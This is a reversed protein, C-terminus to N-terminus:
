SCVEDSQEAGFPGSWMVSVRGRDIEYILRRGNDGPQRVVVRHVEVDPNIVEADPHVDLVAQESDGLAVGQETRIPSGERVFVFQLGDEGIFLFEVGDPDEGTALADCAPLQSRTLAVGAAREAEDLSMGAHVPGIGDFGLRSDNTLGTPATTTTAAPADTTTTAPQAETSTTSSAPAADTPEDDSGCAAVAVLLALSIVLSRMVTLM